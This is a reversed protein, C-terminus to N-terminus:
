RGTVLLAWNCWDAKPQKYVKGGFKSLVPIRWWGGNFCIERYSSCSLSSDIVEFFPEDDSVGTTNYNHVSLIESKGGNLTRLKTGHHETKMGLVWLTGGDNITNSKAGGEVNGETNWQRIFVKSGREQFMHGVCNNMFVTSGPGAQVVAGLTDCIVPRTSNVILGFNAQPAFVQMHTFALLPAGKSGEVIFASTKKPYSPEKAGGSLLRIFGLGTVHRVSGHVKVDKQFLYWNPDRAKGGRIYVTTAGIEAAHDIAKQIGESDDKDDGAIAGFDNACVWKALDTEWPIQPETAIPLALGKSPAGTGLQIPPASSYEEIKPGVAGKEGDDIVTKFGKTGMRQVYLTAKSLRIAPGDGAGKGAFRCDVMSVMGGDIIEMAQPADIVDLKEIAVVQGKIRMGIKSANRIVIRSLTQSNLIHETNIGTAFGNIEVDQILLPGNQDTWGLEIGCVGNGIIRMLRMVGTNNSYFKVGIAGPNKGTDVTFNVMTRDFFDANMKAGDERWHGRIMEKPKAADGFGDAGDVLKLITKASDQGYVWPGVMSGADKGDGPPKFTLTKTIKYTGNPIYVFRSNDGINSQEIASQIAATDDAIGDGKAGFETKVNIIAKPDAPFVIEVAFAQQILLAASGLLLLRRTTNTM